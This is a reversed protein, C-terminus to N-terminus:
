RIIGETPQRGMDVPKTAPPGSTSRSPRIQVVGDINDNIWILRASDCDTRPPTTM